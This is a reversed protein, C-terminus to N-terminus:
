KKLIRDLLIDIRHGFRKVPKALLWSLILGIFGTLLVALIILAGVDFLEGKIALNNKEGIWHTFIAVGLGILLPVIVIIGVAYITKINNELEVIRDNLGAPSHRKDSMQNRDEPTIKNQQAHEGDYVDKTVRDLDAFWIQFCELGYDLYIPHNGANYVSFKLHGTFGPDVHFGSINVLGRYTNGFKISIFGMSHDPITIKEQTYLIAYQGSPITLTPEKGLATHNETGDPTVIVKRSLTLEYKGSKVRHDEFKEILHHISFSGDKKKIKIEKPQEERIRESSWFAMHNRQNIKQQM